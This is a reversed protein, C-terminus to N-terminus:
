VKLGEVIWEVSRDPMASLMVEELAANWMEKFHDERKSLLGIDPRNLIRTYAENFNM